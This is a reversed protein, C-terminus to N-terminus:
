SNLTRNKHIHFGESLTKGVSLYPDYRINDAKTIPLNEIITITNFRVRIDCREVIIRDVISDNDSVDFKNDDQHVM